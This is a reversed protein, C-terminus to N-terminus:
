LHVVTWDPAVAVIHHHMTPEAVDPFPVWMAKLEVHEADPWEAVAEQVIFRSLGEWNQALTSMTTTEVMPRVRRMRLQPSLWDYDRDASRHKLDGDVYVELRRVRNPGDRYLAWNQAGRIPQELIHLADHPPLRVDRNFDAIGIGVGGWFEGIQEILEAKDESSRLESRRMGDLGPTGLLLLVFWVVVLLLARIKPWM